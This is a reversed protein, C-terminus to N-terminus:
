SLETLTELTDIDRAAYESLPHKYFNDFKFLRKASGGLSINCLETLATNTFIAPPMLTKNCYSIARDKNSLNQLLATLHGTQVFPMDGLMVCIGSHGKEQAALAALRLSRGQGEAPSPNEILSYGESNFLKRRQISAKPIVAFRAAFPLPKAADIAHQVLPKGRFEAMLKDAKGFRESLGSALITLACNEPRM